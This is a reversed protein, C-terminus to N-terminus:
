ARPPWTWTGAPQEQGPFEEAWYPVNWEQLTGSGAVAGKGIEADTAPNRQGPTGATFVVLHVSEDDDIDPIYGAEVNDRNLDSRTAAIVAPMSYSGSRSRYHVMRGMALGQM